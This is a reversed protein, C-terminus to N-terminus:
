KIKKIKFLEQEIWNMVLNLVMIKEEKSANKYLPNEFIKNKENLIEIASIDKKIM